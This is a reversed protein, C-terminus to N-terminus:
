HQRLNGSMWLLEVFWNAMVKECGEAKKNMLILIEPFPTLIVKMDTVIHVVHSQSQFSGVEVSKRSFSDSAQKLVGVETIDGQDATITLLDLRVLHDEARSTLEELTQQLLVPQVRVGEDVQLHRM